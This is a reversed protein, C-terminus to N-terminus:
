QALWSTLKKKKKEQKQQKFKEVQKSSPRKRAGEAEGTEDEGTRKLGKGELQQEWGKVDYYAEQQRHSRQYDSIRDPTFKPDVQFRGTRANFRAAQTAMSSGSGSARAASPDLWALEPDIPPPADSPESPLPPQSTSATSPENSTSPDASSSSTSSTQRPNEWTTQNTKSNWFYWANAEPSFVAQWPDEENDKEETGTATEVAKRSTTEQEEENGAQDPTDSSLNPESTNPQKDVAEPEPTPDKSSM